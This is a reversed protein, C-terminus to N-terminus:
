KITELREMGHLYIFGGEIWSQRDEDFQLPRFCDERPITHFSGVPDELVKETRWHDRGCEDQGLWILIDMGAKMDEPKRMPEIVPDWDDQTRVTTMKWVRPGFRERITFKISRGEPAKVDAIDFDPTM